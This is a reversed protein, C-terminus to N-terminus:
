VPDVGVKKECNIHNFLEDDFCGIELYKKYNKKRIIEQVIEKRSKKKLLILDLIEM